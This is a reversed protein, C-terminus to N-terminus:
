YVIKYCTSGGGSQKVKVKAEYGGKEQTGRKKKKKRSGEGDKRLNAAQKRTAEKGKV